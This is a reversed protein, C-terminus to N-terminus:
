TWLKMAHTLSMVNECVSTIKKAIVLFDGPVDVEEFDADSSSSAKDYDSLAEILKAAAEV